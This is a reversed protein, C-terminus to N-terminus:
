KILKTQFHIPQDVCHVELIYAGKALRAVDMTARAGASFKGTSEHVMKGDIGYLVLEYTGSLPLEINLVDFFPNPHVKIENNYIALTSSPTADGDPTKGPRFAVSGWPKHKYVMYSTTSTPRQSFAAYIGTVPSHLNQGSFALAHASNSNIKDIYYYSTAISSPLVGNNDAVIKTLYRGNNGFLGGMLSSHRSMWGVQISDAHNIYALVPLTPIYNYIASSYNQVTLLTATSSTATNKVLARVREIVTGPVSHNLEGFVVAWKKHTFRDPCDIRPPSYLTTAAGVTYAGETTFASSGGLVSAFPMSIVRITGGSMATLYLNRVGAYSGLSVDPATFDSLATVTVTPGFLADPLAAKVFIQGERGWTIALGMGEINADVNIGGCYWSSPALPVSLLEPNLVGSDFRYIDYFYGGAYSSTNARFYAALVRVRGDIGVYNAVDIDYGVLPLHGQNVLGGGATTVRWAIGGDSDAYQDGEDWCHAYFNMPVGGLTPDNILQLTSSGAHVAWYIPTTPLPFEPSIADTQASIQVQHLVCGLVIFLIKKM